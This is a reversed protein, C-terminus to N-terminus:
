SKAPTYNKIWKPPQLFYDRSAYTYRKPKSGSLNRESILLRTIFLSNSNRKQDMKMQEFHVLLSIEGM